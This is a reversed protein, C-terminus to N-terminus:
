ESPSSNKGKRGEEKRREQIGGKRGGEEEKRERGVKRGVERERETKTEWIWYPM